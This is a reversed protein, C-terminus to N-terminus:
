KPEAPPTPPAQKLAEIAKQHRQAERVYLPIPQSKRRLILIAFATLVALCFFDFWDPNTSYFTRPPAVPLTLTRKISHPQAGDEDAVVGGISDILYLDGGSGIRIIPIRYSVARLTDFARSWADGRLGLGNLGGFSFLGYVGDEIVSQAALDSQSEGGFSIGFREGSKLLFARSRSSDLISISVASDAVGAKQILRDFNTRIDDKDVIITRQPEVLQLREADGLSGHSVLLISKLREARKQFEGQCEELGEKPFHFLTPWLILDRQISDKGLQETLHILEPLKPLWKLCREGIELEQGALSGKKLDTLVAGIQLMKPTARSNFARYDSINAEVSRMGLIPPVWYLLSIVALIPHTDPFRLRSPMILLSLLCGMGVFAFSMYQVGALESGQLIWSYQYFSHGLKWAIPRPIASEALVFLAPLGLGFWCEVFLPDRRRIHFRHHLWNAACLFGPIHIASFFSIVFHWAINEPASWHFTQIGFIVETLAYAFALSFGVYITKLLSPVAAIWLASLVAFILAM